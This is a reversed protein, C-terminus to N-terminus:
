WGDYGINNNEGHADLYLKYREVVFDTQANFSTIYGEDWHVPVRMHAYDHQGIDDPNYNWPSPDDRIIDQREMVLDEGNFGRLRLNLFEHYTDVVLGKEGKHEGSLIRVFTGNTLGLSSM